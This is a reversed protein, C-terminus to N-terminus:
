VLDSYESDAVALFKKVETAMDGEKPGKKQMKNIIDMVGRAGEFDAENFSDARVSVGFANLLNKQKDVMLQTWESDPDVYSFITWRRGAPDAGDEQSPGAIINTSIIYQFPCNEEGPKRGDKPKYEMKCSIAELVYEGDDLHYDGGVVGSSKGLGPIRHKAM